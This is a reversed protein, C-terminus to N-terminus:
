KKPNLFFILKLISFCFLIISIIQFLTLGLLIITNDLRWFEIFFRKISYLLLYAFFIQGDKHPRQQLFRLIIFVVLLLFSSYVQIPIVTKGYCCGNLLCGIRGIAQALAIFPAILDFVKYIPLKEKRLYIVSSLIGLLLGGFWSLGGRQLMIIEIPNNLYYHLNEIVYFIRAGLIGFILAIFFLNFITDPPINQKKAEISALTSSVLFAIALM